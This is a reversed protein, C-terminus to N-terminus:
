VWLRRDLWLGGRDLTNHSVDGFVYGGPGFRFWV